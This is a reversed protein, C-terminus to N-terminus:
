AGVMSIATPLFILAKAVPEGRMGDALRAIVIGVSTSVLTVFFAWWLSNRLVIRSDDDVFIHKYNSLGTWADRKDNFSYRVNMLAPVVLGALLILAPLLFVSTQARERWPDPLARSLGYLGIVVALLAIVGVGAKLLSPLIEIV